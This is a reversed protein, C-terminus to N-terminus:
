YCSNNYDTTNLIPIRKCSKGEIFFKTWERYEPLDILEQKLKTQSKYCKEVIDIILHTIVKINNM